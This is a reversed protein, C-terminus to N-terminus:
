KRSQTDSIENIERKTNIKHSRKYRGSTPIVGLRRGIPTIVDRFGYFGIYRRMRGKFFELESVREM